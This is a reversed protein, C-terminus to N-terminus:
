LYIKQGVFIFDTKNNRLIELERKKDGFSLREITDYPKVIYPNGAPKEILLLEGASPEEKLINDSVIIQVTTKLKEAISGLSDGKEVRYIFEGTLEGVSKLKENM